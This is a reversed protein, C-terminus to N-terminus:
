KKEERYLHKLTSLLDDREKEVTALQEELESYCRGCKLSHILDHKLCAVGIQKSRVSLSDELDAVRQRLDDEVQSLPMDAIVAKLKYGDRAKEVAALDHECTILRELTDSYRLKEDALQAKLNEIEHFFKAGEELETVRNRLENVEIDHLLL